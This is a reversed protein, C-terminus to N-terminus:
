PSASLLSARPLTWMFVSASGPPLHGCAWPCRPWWLRFLCSPGGRSGGPLVAQGRRLSRAELSLPLVNRRSQALLSTVSPYPLMPFECWM